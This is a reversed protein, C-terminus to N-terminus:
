RVRRLDLAVRRPGPKPQVKLQYVAGEADQVYLQHGPQIAVKLHETDGLVPWPAGARQTLAEDTFFGPKAYSYPREREGDPGYPIDSEIIFWLWDGAHEPDEEPSVHVYFFDAAGETTPNIAAALERLARPNEALNAKIQELLEHANVGVPLDHLTFAVTADGEALGGDHLRVQAMELQIDWLYTPTPHTGIDNFTEFKLWGVEDLCGQFVVTQAGVTYEVCGARKQSGTTRAMQAVMREMVWPPQQWVPNDGFGIPERVRSPAFFLPSETVEVTLTQVKPHEILGEIHMWDDAETNFIHEIQSGLANVSAQAGARLDVGKYPLSNASVKVRMQFRDHVVALGRAETIFGPHVVGEAARVPGFRERLDSFEYVVDALTIPMAGAPVPWRGDPHAEDVPGTRWQVNPHTAVLGEVMVQAAVEIPILPEARGVQMLDAIASAPPIGISASLEILEDMSTGSLDVVSASTRLLKQMNRAAVSPLAETPADRLGRLSNLVLPTLDLDLLWIEALMARPMRKLDALSLSHEFDRVNLRLDRLEFARQEGVTLPGTPAPATLEVPDVCAAGLSLATLTLGRALLGARYLLRTPTRATQGLGRTLRESRRLIHEPARATQTLSRAPPDPPQPPIRAPAHATQGLLRAPAHATQDLDRATPSSPPQPRRM